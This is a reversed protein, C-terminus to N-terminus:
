GSRLAAGALAVAWGAIRMAGQRAKGFRLSALDIGVAHLAITATLFGAVYDWALAMAPLEIGHAHGHFLACIGVVTAAVPTPVKVELAVLLGLVAVTLAIATEVMPLPLGYVGMVGGVAMLAVFASPVICRAKGGLTSAWFGVAVMALIHDLGSFPHGLGALAGDTHLGVHAHAIGPLALAALTAAIRHYTM